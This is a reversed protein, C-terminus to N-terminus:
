FPIIGRRFLDIVEAREVSDADHMEQQENFRRALPTAVMGLIPRRGRFQQATLDYIRGCARVWFHHEYRRPNTGRIIAADRVAYREEVLFAFIMSVRQCANHPFSRSSPFEFIGEVRNLDLFALLREASATINRHLFEQDTSDEITWCDGGPEVLSTM